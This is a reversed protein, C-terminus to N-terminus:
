RPSGTRDAVRQEYTPSDRLWHHLGRPDPIFARAAEIAAETDYETVRLVVDPGLTAWWAAPRVTPAGVSGPNVIRVGAFSKDFQLHTHGCVVVRESVGSLAEAWDDPSSEPTLIQEES